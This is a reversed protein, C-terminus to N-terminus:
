CTRTSPRRRGAPLSRHPTPLSPSVPAPSLAAASSYPKVMPPQPRDLSHVPWETQAMLPLPALTAISALMLTRRANM